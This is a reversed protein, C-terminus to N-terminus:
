RKGIIDAGRIGEGTGCMGRLCCGGDTGRADFRCNEKENEKKAHTARFFPVGM